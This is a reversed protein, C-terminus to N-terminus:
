FTQTVYLYVLTLVSPQPVALLLWSSIDKVTEVPPTLPVNKLYQVPVIQIQSVSSIDTTCGAVRGQGATPQITALAAAADQGLQDVHTM